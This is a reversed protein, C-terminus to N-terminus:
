KNPNRPRETLNIRASKSRISPQFKPPSNKPDCIMLNKSLTQFGNVKVRGLIIIKWILLKLIFCGFQFGSKLLFVTAFIFYVLYIKGWIVWIFFVTNGEKLLNTILNACRKNKWFKWFFFGGVRILTLDIEL